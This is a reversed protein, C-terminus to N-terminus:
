ANLYIKALANLIAPMADKYMYCVDCHNKTLYEYNKIKCGGQCHPLSKCTKCEDFNKNKCNTNWQLNLKQLFNDDYISIKSHEPKERQCKSTKGNPFLCFCNPQEAQCHYRALHFHFYNLNKLYGYKILKNFIKNYQKNLEKKTKDNGKTTTIPAFYINIKDSTLQQKNLFRVLKLANKLNNKDFNVRITVKQGIKTLIKINNIVKNFNSGDAYGKIKNYTKELGDLTIQVAKFEWENQMKNAIEKTILSGNTIISATYKINNKECHEKVLKTIEEIAYTNILPEGGFWTIHLWKANINGIISKALKKCDEKKITIPTIGKEFCYACRANCATTTYITLIQKDNENGYMKTYTQKYEDNLNTILHESKWTEYNINNQNCNVFDSYDAKSVFVLSQFLTNFVLYGKNKIKKVLNYNSTRM